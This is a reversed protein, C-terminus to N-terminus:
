VYSEFSSSLLDQSTHRSETHRTFQWASGREKVLPHRTSKSANGPKPQIRPHHSAARRQHYKEINARRAFLPLKLATVRKANQSKKVSSVRKSMPRRARKSVITIEPNRSHPTVNFNMPASRSSSVSKKTSHNEPQPSTARGFNHEKRFVRMMNGPHIM